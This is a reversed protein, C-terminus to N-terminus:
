KCNRLCAEKLGSRQLHKGKQQFAKLEGWPLVSRRVLSQDFTVRGILGQRARRYSNSGRGGDEKLVGRLVKKRLIKNIILQINKTNVNM